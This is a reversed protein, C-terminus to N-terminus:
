SLGALSLGALETGIEVWEARAKRVLDLVNFGLWASDQGDLGLGATGLRAWRIGASGLM